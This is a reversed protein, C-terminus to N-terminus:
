AMAFAVLAIEDGDRVATAPEAFQKNVTIKLSPNARLAREWIEGRQGLWRLLTDIDRVDAPPEAHESTQGFLTALHGFYLIRIM